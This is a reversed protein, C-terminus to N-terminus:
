LLPLALAARFGRPRGNQLTLHGGHQEAIWHAVALGLGSGQESAYSGSQHFPKILQPLVVPDVGPGEDEVALTIEQDTRATAVTVTQGLESAKVANDILAMLAHLLWEGDALVEVDDIVDGQLKLPVAKKEAMAHTLAIAKNVVPALETPEKAIVLEGADSRAL